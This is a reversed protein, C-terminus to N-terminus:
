AQMHPDQLLGLHRGPLQLCLIQIRISLYSLFQIGQHLPQVRWSATSAASVYSQGHQM